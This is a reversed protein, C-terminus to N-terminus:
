ARSVPRQDAIELAAPALCVPRRETDGSPPSAGPRKRAAGGSYALLVLVGVVVLALGLAERPRTRQRFTRASVVQAFLIEVLALTRVRAAAELAFALFWLQSAIAG